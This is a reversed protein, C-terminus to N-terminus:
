HSEQLETIFSLLRHSDTYDTTFAFCFSNHLILNELALLESLDTSAHYIPFSIEHTLIHSRCQPVVIWFLCYSLMYIIFVFPHVFHAGRASVLLGDDDVFATEVREDEGGFEFAGFSELMPYGGFHEWADPLHM